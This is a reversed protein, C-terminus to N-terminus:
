VSPAPPADPRPVLSKQMRVSPMFRGSPLAHDFRDLTEFGLATWFPIAGLAAEIHIAQAGAAHAVSEGAAYVARGVGRRAASGRVYVAIRHMDAEVAYSSFGLVSEVGPAESNTAVFFVGGRDMADRVRKPPRPAGWEAIIEAPYHAAGLSRVADGHVDAIAAADEATARRITFALMATVMPKPAAATLLAPKQDRVM